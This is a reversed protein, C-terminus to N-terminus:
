RVPVKGSGRCLPASTRPRAVEDRSVKGPKGGRVGQESHRLLVPPVDSPPPTYQGTSCPVREGPKLDLVARAHEWVRQVVEQPDAIRRFGRDPDVYAMVDKPPLAGRRRFRDRELALTPESAEPQFQIVARAMRAGAVRVCAFCPPSCKVPNAAYSCEVVAHGKADEFSQIEPDSLASSGPNGYFIFCKDKM